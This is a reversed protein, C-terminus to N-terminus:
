PTSRYGLARLVAADYVAQAEPTNLPGRSNHMLEFATNRAEEREAHLDSAYRTEAAFRACHYQDLAILDERMKDLERTVAELEAKFDREREVEREAKPQIKLGPHHGCKTCFFDGHQYSCPCEPETCRHHAPSIIEPPKSM